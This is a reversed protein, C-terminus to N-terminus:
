ESGTKVQFWLIRVLAFGSCEGLGLSFEVAEQSNIWFFCMVKNISQKKADEPDPDVGESEMPDAGCCFIGMVVM